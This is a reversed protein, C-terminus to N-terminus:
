EVKTKQWLKRAQDIQKADTNRRKLEKIYMEETMGIQKYYKIMDKQKKNMFLYMGGVMIVALLIGVLLGKWKFFITLLISIIAWCVILAISIIRLNKQSLSKPQKINEDNLKQKYLNKQYGGSPRNYNMSKQMGSSRRKSMEKIRKKKDAERFLGSIM